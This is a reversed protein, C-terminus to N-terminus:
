RVSTHGVAALSSVEFEPRTSSGYASPQGLRKEVINKALTPMDPHGLSALDDLEVVVTVTFRVRM